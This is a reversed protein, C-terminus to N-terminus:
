HACNNWLEYGESVSAEHLSESTEVLYLYPNLTCELTYRTAAEIPERAQEAFTRDGSVRAYSLVAWMALATVDEAPAPAIPSGNPDYRAEWSGSPTQVALLFDCLARARPLEGLESLAAVAASLDRTSVFPQSGDPPTALLVEGRAGRVTARELLARSVTLFRSLEAPDLTTSAMVEGDHEESELACPAGSRSPVPPITCHPRKRAAQIRAATM